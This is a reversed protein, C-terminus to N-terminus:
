YRIRTCVTHSGQSGVWLTCHSSDVHELGISGWDGFSPLAEDDDDDDDDDDIDDFQTSSDNKFVEIFHKYDAYAFISQEAFPPLEEFAGKDIDGDSACLGLLWSNFQRFSAEIHTSECERTTRRESSASSSSLAISTGIRFSTRCNSLDGDLLRAAFAELDWSSAFAKYVHPVTLSGDISQKQQKRQAFSSM